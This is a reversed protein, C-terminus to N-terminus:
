FSIENRNVKTLKTHHIEGLEKSNWRSAVALRGTGHGVIRVITFRKNKYYVREGLAFKPFFERKYKFMKLKKSM